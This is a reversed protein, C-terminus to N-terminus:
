HCSFYAHMTSTDLDYALFMDGGEPEMCHTYSLFNTPCPGGGFLVKGGDPRLQSTEGLYVRDFSNTRISPKPPMTRLNAVYARFEAESVKCSYRCRKGIWGLGTNGSVTIDCAGAPVWHDVFFRRGVWDAKMAERDAFTCSSIPRCYVTLLCMLGVLITFMGTGLSAGIGALCWRMVDVSEEWRVPRVIGLAVAVIPILVYVTLFAMVLYWAGGPGVIHHKAFTDLLFYLLYLGAALVAFAIGLNRMVTYVRHPRAEENM